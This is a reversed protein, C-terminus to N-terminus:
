SITNKDPDKFIVTYTRIVLRLQLIPCVMHVTWKSLPFVAYSQRTGSSDMNVTGTSQNWVTVHTTFANCSSPVTMRTLTLVLVTVNWPAMVCAQLYIPNLTKVSIVFNRTLILNTKRWKFLYPMSSHIYSKMLIFHFFVTHMSNMNIHLSAFLVFASKSPDKKQVQAFVTQLVCVVVLHRIM